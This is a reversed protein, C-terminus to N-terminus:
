DAMPHVARDEYLPEFWASPDLPGTRLHAGESTGPDDIRDFKLDFMFEHDIDPFLFERLHEFAYTSEGELEEFCIEAHELVARM